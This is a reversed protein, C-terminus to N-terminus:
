FVNRYAGFSISINISSHNRYNLIAQLAPHSYLRNHLNDESQNRFKLIKQM